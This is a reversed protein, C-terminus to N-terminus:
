QTVLDPLLALLYYYELINIRYEVLSKIYKKRTELWRLERNNLVFNNSEGLQFRQQEARLLEEYNIAASQWVQQTSDLIQRAQINAQIANSIDMKFYESELGVIKKQIEWQKSRARESRVFLPYSFELAWYQNQDLNLSGLIPDGADQQIAYKVDLEPKLFERALKTKAEYGSASLEFYRSMPHTAVFDQTFASDISALAELNGVVPDMAVNTNLAMSTRLSARAFQLIKAQQFYFAERNQLNIFAELTDIAAAEGILQNSRVFDLRDETVLRAQLALENMLVAEYWKWYEKGAEFLFKNLDLYVKLETADRQIRALKVKTREKDTILGAGLPVEFAFFGLGDQPVTESPNIYDGFAQGYGGSVKLAYPTQVTVSSSTRSYYLQDNFRKSEYLTQLKPEFAAKTENYKETAFDSNLSISQIYPSNQWVSKFYSREDLHLTDQALSSVGLSLLLILKILRHM